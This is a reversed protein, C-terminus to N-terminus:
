DLVEHSQEVGVLGVVIRGLGRKCVSPRQESSLFGNMQAGARTVARKLM